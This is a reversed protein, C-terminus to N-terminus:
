VQLSRRTPVNKYYDSPRWSTFRLLGSFEDEHRPVYNLV